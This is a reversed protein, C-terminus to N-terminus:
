RRRVLMRTTKPSGVSCSALTCVHEHNKGLHAYPKEMLVDNDDVLGNNLAIGNSHGHRANAEGLRKNGGYGVKPQLSQPNYVPWGLSLAVKRGPVNTM